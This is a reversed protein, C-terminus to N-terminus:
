DVVKRVEPLHEVFETEQGSPDEAFEMKHGFPDEGLGSPHEAAHPQDEASGSDDQLIM